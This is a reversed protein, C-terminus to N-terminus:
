IMRVISKISLIRKEQSVAELSQMARRLCSSPFSMMGKSSIRRRLDERFM